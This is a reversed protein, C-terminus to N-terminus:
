REPKIKCDKNSIVFNPKVKEQKRKRLIDRVM